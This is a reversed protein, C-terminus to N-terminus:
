EAVALGLEARAEALLEDAQEQRQVAKKLTVDARRNVERLVHQLEKAVDAGNASDAVPFRFADGEIRKVPLRRDEAVRELALREWTHLRRSLKVVLIAPETGLDVDPDLALSAVELEERSAESLAAMLEADEDGPFYMTM